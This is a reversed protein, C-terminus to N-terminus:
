PGLLPASAVDALFRLYRDFNCSWAYLREPPNALARDLAEVYAEAILAHGINGPHFNDGHCTPGTFCAQDPRSIADERGVTAAWLDAVELDRKAAEERIIESFHSMQGFVADDPAWGLWPITGVVVVAGSGQLCDLMAGYAERFEAEDFVAAWHVGVEVIILKRNRVAAKQATILDNFANLTWLNEVPGQVGRAELAQWVENVFMAQKSSVWAGMTISDGMFVVPAVNTVPEHYPDVSAPRVSGKPMLFLSIIVLVSVLFERM